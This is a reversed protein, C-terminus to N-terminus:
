GTKGISVMKLGFERSVTWSVSTGLSKGKVVEIVPSERGARREKKLNLLVSALDELKDWTEDLALRMTIVITKNKQEIVSRFGAMIDNITPYELGHTLTSLSDIIVLDSYNNRSFEYINHLVEERDVQKIEETSPSSHTREMPSFIRFQGTAFIERVNEIGISEMHKLVSNISRDLSFFDVNMNTIYSIKEEGVKREPGQIAGVTICESLVTKGTGTKGVLVILGPHTIGGIVSDLRADTTSIVNSM